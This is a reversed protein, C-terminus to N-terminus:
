GRRARAVDLGFRLAVLVLVCGMTVRAGHVWGDLHVMLVGGLAGVVTALVLGSIRGLEIEGRRWYDQVSQASVFITMAMSCARAELYTISPLSLFLAPIALVGGGVGLVPAIFGAAFGIAVVVAVTPLTLTVGSGASTDVLADLALIRAAALAVVVAFLRKLLLVDMRGAARLGARAGFWGGGILCAVVEPRLASAAHMAEAATASVSLTLVLCLSTAVARKMPLGGLYHLLPVAFLGGGIGCLSSVFAAGGWLVQVWAAIRARPAAAAVASPINV